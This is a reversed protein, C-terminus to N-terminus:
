IPKQTFNPQNFIQKVSCRKYPLIIMAKQCCHRLSAPAYSHPEMRRTGCDIGSNKFARRTMAYISSAKIVGYGGYNLFIHPNSFQPRGHDIYDWVAEKVESLLVTTLPHKTKYQLIEIKEAKLDGFRPNSINSARLGLRSAILIIAFNRKGLKTTRDISALLQEVEEPSYVSPVGNHRVVTPILHKLNSRTMNRNYAYRFFTGIANRFNVKDTAQNFGKLIMAVTISDTQLCGHREFMELFEAVMRVLKRIRQFTRDTRLLYDEYERILGDYGSKKYDLTKRKRPKWEVNL